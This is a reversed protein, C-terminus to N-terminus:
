DLGRVMCACGLPGFVWKSGGREAKAVKERVDSENIVFAQLGLYGM